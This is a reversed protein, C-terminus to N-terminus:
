RGKQMKLNLNQTGRNSAEPVVAKWLYNKLTDVIPCTYTNYTEPGLKKGLAVRPSFEVANPFEV